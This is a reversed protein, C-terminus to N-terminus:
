TSSSHSAAYEYEEHASWIHERRPHNRSVILLDLVGRSLYDVIIIHQRTKQVIYQEADLSPSSCAKVQGENRQPKPCRLEGM